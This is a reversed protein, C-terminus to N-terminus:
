PQPQDAADAPAASADGPPALYATLRDVIADTPKREYIFDDLTLKGRKGDALSYDVFAIGKRDWLGKDLATISALPVPPHGPIHLTDDSLRYAGRSRYLFFVLFLGALIPLSYGLRKQWAISEATEPTLSKLTVRAREARAEDGAATAQEIERQLEAVKENTRPYKIYGDYLFWAGFAFMLAVMIYRRIRYDASGRAVIDGEVAQAENQQTM